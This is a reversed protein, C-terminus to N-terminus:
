LESEPAPAFSDGGSYAYAAVEDILPLMAGEWSHLVAGDNALALIAPYQMVDYLSATSSGERGDINLVDLRGSSHHDRYNQIFEEVIRAHESQPRYLIVIRM